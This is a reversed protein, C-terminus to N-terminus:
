YRYGDEDVIRPSRLQDGQTAAGVVVAHHLIGLGFSAKVRGFCVFIFWDGVTADKIRVAKKGRFSHYKIVRMREEYM